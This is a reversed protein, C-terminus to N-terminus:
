WEKGRLMAGTLPLVMCFFVEVPVETTICVSIRCSAKQEGAGADASFGDQSSLHLIGM